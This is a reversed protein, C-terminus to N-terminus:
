APYREGCIPCYHFAIPYTFIRNRKKGPLPPVTVIGEAYFQTTGSSMMLALQEIDFSFDPLDPHQDQFRKGVLEKTQNICECM